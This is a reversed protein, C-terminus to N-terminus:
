MRLGPYPPLQPQLLEQLLLELGAQCGLWHCGTDFALGIWSVFEFCFLFDLCVVFYFLVVFTPSTTFHDLTQRSHESVLVIWVFM